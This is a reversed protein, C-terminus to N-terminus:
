FLDFGVSIETHPFSSSSVNATNSTKEVMSLFLWLEISKTSILLKAVLLLSTKYSSCVKELSVQPINYLTLLIAVTVRWFSPFCKPKYPLHKVFHSDKLDQDFSKSPVEALILHKIAKKLIGFNHCAKIMAKQLQQTSRCLGLSQSSLSVAENTEDSHSSLKM